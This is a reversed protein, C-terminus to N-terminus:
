GPTLRVTVVREAIVVGDCELRFKMEGAQEVAFPPLKLATVVPGGGVGAVVPLMRSHGKSPDAGPNLKSIFYTRGPRDPTLSVVATLQVQAPLTPVLLVDGAGVVDVAGDPRVTASEAFIISHVRVPIYPPPKPKRYNRALAVCVAIGGLVLAVTMWLSTARERPAAPPTADTM